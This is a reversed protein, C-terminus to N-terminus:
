RGLLGGSADIVAGTMCAARDSALFVVVDAVEDPRVLRGLPIRGLWEAWEQSSTGSTMETEMPGPAVANVAIGLPALERALSITLSIVGGKSADYPSHWGASGALASAAAINVIRGQRKSALLHRVMQRSCLFTGTLNVQVTTNWVEWSLDKFAATPYVGANNILIDIKGFRHIAAAFMAQVDPESAVNARFPYAERHYRVRIEQALEEALNATHRYNIVVHAGERALALCIARGLGRSGGTVLAVKDTLGLEM